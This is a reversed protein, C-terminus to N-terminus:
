ETVLIRRRSFFVCSFLRRVTGHLFPMSAWRCCMKPDSCSRAAMGTMDGRGVQAAQSGSIGDGFFDITTPRARASSLMQVGGFGHRTKTEWVVHIASCTSVAFMLLLPLLLAPCCHDEGGAPVTLSTQRILYL